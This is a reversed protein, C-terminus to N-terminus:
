LRSNNAMDRNWILVGTWEYFNQYTYEYVSHNHQQFNLIKQEQESSFDSFNAKLSVQFFLICSLFLVGKQMVSNHKLQNPTLNGEVMWKVLKM